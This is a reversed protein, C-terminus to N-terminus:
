DSVWVTYGDGSTLYNLVPKYDSFVMVTIDSRIHDIVREYYYDAREASRPTLYQKLMAAFIDEQTKLGYPETEHCYRLYKLLDAGRFNKKGKACIFNFEDSRYSIQEPVDISVFGMANVADDFGEDDSLVYASIRIEELTELASRLRSIGGDDYYQERSRTTDGVTVVEDPSVASFSIIKQLIDTKMLVIYRIKDNTKADDQAGCFLIYYFGSYDKDPLTEDEAATTEEKKSFINSFDNDIYKIFWVAVLAILLLFFLIFGLLLKRTRNAKINRQTRFELKKKM